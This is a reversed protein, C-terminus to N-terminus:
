KVDDRWMVSKESKGKYQEIKVPAIEGPRYYYIMRKDSGELTQTVRDLTLTRGGSRLPVDAELSLTSNSIKGKKYFPIELRRGPANRLRPYLLHISLYDYPPDRYDLKRTQEPTAYYLRQRDNDFWTSRRAPKDAYDGSRSLMLRPEEGQMRLWTESFPKKRTLLRLWGVPESKLEWIWYGNVPYLRMRARAATTEGRYIHYDHTFERLAAEAQALGAAFLLLCATLLARFGPEPRRNMM